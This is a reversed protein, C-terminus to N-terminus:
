FLGVVELLIEDATYNGETDALILTLYQGILDDNDLSIIVKNNDKVIKLDDMFNCKIEWKPVIDNALNKGNYFNATFTTGKIYM